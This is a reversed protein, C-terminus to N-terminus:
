HHGFAQPAEALQWHTPKDTMALKSSTTHCQFKKSAILLYNTPGQLTCTPLRARPGKSKSPAQHRPHRRSGWVNPSEIPSGLADTPQRGGEDTSRGQARHDLGRHPGASAARRRSCRRQRGEVTTIWVCRSRNHKHPQNGKRHAASREGNWQAGDVVGRGGM